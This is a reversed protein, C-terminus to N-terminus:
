MNTYHHHSSNNAYESPSTGTYQKFMKSFHFISNYGVSLAVQEITEFDSRLIAKAKEIRFNHLYKIPSTGYVSVFTRRFYVTSMGSLESLLENTISSDSYNETIYKIAPKLASYKKPHPHEQKASKLLFLLIEYLYYNCELRHCTKKTSLSKEIKSFNNVLLSNDKIEFSTFTTETNEAEFEIIICEGPEICKWSYSCGKPLIVPHLSDSLVIENGVTYLTKGKIKLVIAWGERNNRHTTIGVPSNLLRNASLIKNVVLNSVSYIFM